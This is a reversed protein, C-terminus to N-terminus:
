EAQTGTRGRAVTQMRNSILFYRYCQHQETKIQCVPMQLVYPIGVLTFNCLM